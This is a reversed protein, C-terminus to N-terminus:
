FPVLNMKQGYPCIPFPHLVFTRSGTEALKKQREDNKNPQYMPIRNTPFRKLCDSFHESILCQLCFISGELNPLLVLKFIHNLKDIYLM